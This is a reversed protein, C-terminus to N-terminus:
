ARSSIISYWNGIASSRKRRSHFETYSGCKSTTATRSVSAVSSLRWHMGQPRHVQGLRRIRALPGPLSDVALKAACQLTPNGQGPRGDQGQGPLTHTARSLLPRPSAPEGREAAKRRAPATTQGRRLPRGHGRDIFLCGNYRLTITCCIFLQSVASGTHLLFLHFYFCLIYLLLVATSIALSDRGCLYTPSLCVGLRPRFFNRLGTFSLSSHNGDAVPLRKAM